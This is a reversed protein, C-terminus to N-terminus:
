RVMGKKNKKKCNILYKKYIKSLEYLTNYLLYIENFIYNKIQYLFKM